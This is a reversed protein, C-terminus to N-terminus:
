STWAGCPSIRCQGWSSGVPRLEHGVCGLVYMVVSFLAQEVHADQVFPVIFPFHAAKRGVACAALVSVVCRKM